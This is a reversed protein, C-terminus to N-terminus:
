KGAATARPPAFTLTMLAIGLFLMEHGSFMRTVLSVGRAYGAHTTAIQRGHDSFYYRNGAQVPQGPLIGSLVIFFFTVFVYLGMALSVFRLWRPIFRWFNSMPNRYGMGRRGAYMFATLGGVVLAVPFDILWLLPAPSLDIPLWSILNLAAAFVFGLAAVIKLATVGTPISRGDAPVAVIHPGFLASPTQPITVGCDRGTAIIQQAVREPERMDFFGIPRHPDLWEVGLTAMMPAHISRSSEFVISGRGSGGRVTVGPIESLLLTRLGGGIKEVVRHDTVAYLTKNRMGAKTVFRGALLYLGILFFLAIPVLAVYQKHQLTVTGAVALLGIWVFSFPVALIDYRTLLLGDPQGIWLVKEGPTLLSTIQLRLDTAAAPASSPQVPQM